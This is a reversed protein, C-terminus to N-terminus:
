MKACFDSFSVVQFKASQQLKIECEAFGGLPNILM